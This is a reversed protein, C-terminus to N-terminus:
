EENDTYWNLWWLYEIIEEKYKRPTKINNAVIRLAQDTIGYHTPSDIFFSFSYDVDDSNMRNIALERGEKKKFTDHNSAFAWGCKVLNGDSRRELSTVLTMAIKKRENRVYKFKVDAM